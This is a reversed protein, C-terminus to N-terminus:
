HLVGVQHKVIFTVVGEEFARLWDDVSCGKPELLCYRANMSDVELAGLKERWYRNILFRQVGDDCVIKAHEHIEEEWVAPTPHGAKALLATIKPVLHPNEVVPLEGTAAPTEEVPVNM